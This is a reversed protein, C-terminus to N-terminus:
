YANNSTLYNHEKMSFCEGKAVILSDLFEVEVAELANFLKKAIIIDQKSPRAVGGPHNHVIIVKKADALLARKAINNIYVPTENQNGKSIKKCSMVNNLPSICFMYAEETLKGLFFTQVYDKFKNYDKINVTGKIMSRQVVGIMEPLSHLFVATRYGVGKVKILEEIEATLVGFLSGYQDLLEHALRNTDHRPIVTFLLFELQEHEELGEIGFEKYKEDLRKRHKVHINDKSM